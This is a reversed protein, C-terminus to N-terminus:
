ISIFISINTILYLYLYIYLYIYGYKFLRTFLDLEIVPFSEMWITYDFKTTVLEVSICEVSILHSLGADEVRKRCIEIAHADVDICHIQFQKARLVEQVEPNTFYIGDGCGIDLVTAKEELTKIISLYGWQTSVPNSYSFLLGYSFSRIAAIRDKWTTIEVSM